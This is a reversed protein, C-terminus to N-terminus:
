KGAHISRLLKLFNDKNHKVAEIPGTMKVFVTTQGLAIMAALMSKDPNGQTQLSTFDFVKIELGDKTKLIQASATLQSLIDDSAQLGLQGLWRELNADLGGVPGALAIIDCDITEPDAILHFTALRMGAGAEEKWGQPVVWFIGPANGQPAEVIIETYHREQPRQGCGSFLLSFICLIWIM